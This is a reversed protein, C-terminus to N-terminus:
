KTASTSDSIWAGLEWPISNDLSGIYEPNVWFRCAGGIEGALYWDDYIDGIGFKELAIDADVTQLVGSINEITQQNLTTEDGLRIFRAFYRDTSKSITIPTHIVTNDLGPNNKILGVLGADDAMNWCGITEDPILYTRSSHSVHALPSLISSFLVLVLFIYTMQTENSKLKIKIMVHNILKIGWCLLPVIAYALLRPTLRIEGIRFDVYAMLPLALICGGLISMNHIGERHTLLGINNKRRLRYNIESTLSLIILPMLLHWYQIQYRLSSNGFQQRFSYEAVTFNWYIFFLGLLLASYRSFYSRPSNKLADISLILGVIISSQMHTISILCLSVLYLIHYKSNNNNNYHIIFASILLGLLQASFMLPNWWFVMLFAIFTFAPISWRDFGEEFMITTSIISIWLISFLLGFFSAVLPAVDNSFIRTLFELPLLIMMRQTYAESNSVGYMSYRDAIELFWWGDVGIPSAEAFQPSLLLIIFILNISIINHTKNSPIIFNSYMPLAISLGVFLPILPTWLYRISFPSPIGNTSDDPSIFYLIIVLFSCFYGGSQIRNPMFNDYKNLFKEIM